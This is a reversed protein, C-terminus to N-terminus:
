MFLGVLVVVAFIIHIALFFEYSHHRFWTMSQVLMFCM